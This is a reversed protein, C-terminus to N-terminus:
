GGLVTKDAKRDRREASGMSPLRAGQLWRHDSGALRLKRCGQRTMLSFGAILSHHSNASHIVASSM